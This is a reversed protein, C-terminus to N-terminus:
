IGDDRLENYEEITAKIGICSEYDECAEFSALMQKAHDSVNGVQEKHKVDEMWEAFILNYMRRRWLAKQVDSLQTYNSSTHM